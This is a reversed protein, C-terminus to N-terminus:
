WRLCPDSLPCLDDLLPTSRGADEAPADDDAVPIPSHNNSGILGCAMNTPSGAHPRWHRCNACTNM